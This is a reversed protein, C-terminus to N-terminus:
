PKHLSPCTGPLDYEECTKCLPTKKVSNKRTEEIRAHKALKSDGHRTTAVLHDIAEEMQSTSPSPADVRAREAHHTTLATLAPAPIRERGHAADPVVSSGATPYAPSKPLSHTDRHPSYMSVHSYRKKNSVLPAANFTSTPSLLTSGAKIPLQIDTVKLHHVPPFLSLKAHNSTSTNPTHIASLTNDQEREKRSSSPRSAPMKLLDPSTKPIVTRISSSDSGDATKPRRALDAETKSLGENTNLISTKASAVQSQVKTNEKIHQNKDHSETHSKAKTSETSRGHYAGQMSCWVRNMRDVEGELREIQARTDVSASPVRPQRSLPGSTPEFAWAQPADVECPQLNNIAEALLKETSIKASSQLTNKQSITPQKSAAEFSGTVSSSPSTFDTDYSLASSVVSRSTSPQSEESVNRSHGKRPTSMRSTRASTPSVAGAQFGFAQRPDSDVLVKIGSPALTSASSAPETTKRPMSIRRAKATQNARRGKSPMSGRSSTVSSSQRVHRREVPIAPLPKHQNLSPRSRQLPHLRSNDVATTTEMKSPASGRRAFDYEDASSASHMSNHDRMLMSLHKRRLNDVRANRNSNSFRVNLPSPTLKSPRHEGDHPEVDVHLAVSSDVQLGKSAAITKLRSARKSASTHSHKRAYGNLARGPIPPLPWTPAPTPSKPTQMTIADDHMFLGGLSSDPRPRGHDAPEPLARYTDPQPWDYDLISSSVSMAESVRSVHGLLVLPPHTPKPTSPESPQMGAGLHLRTRRPPDPKLSLLTKCERTFSLDQMADHLQPLPSAARSLAERLTMMSEPEQAEGEEEDNAPTPPPEEITRRRKESRARRDRISAILRLGRRPPSPSDMAQSSSHGKPPNCRQQDYSISKKRRRNIRQTTNSTSPRLNTSTRRVTSSTYMSVPRSQGDGGDLLRFPSMPQTDFAPGLSLQPAHRSSRSQIPQPQISTCPECANVPSRPTRPSATLFSSDATFNVNGNDYSPIPLEPLQKGYKTGSLTQLTASLRRIPEPEEYGIQSRTVPDLSLRASSVCINDLVQLFSYHKHGSSTSTAMM